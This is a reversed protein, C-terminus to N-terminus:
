DMGESLDGVDLAGPVMSMDGGEIVDVALQGIRPSLTRVFLFGDKLMAWVPRNFDDWVPSSGATWLRVLLVIERVQREDFRRRCHNVGSPLGLASPEQSGMCATGCVHGMCRHGFEDDPTYTGCSTDGGCVCGPCLFTEVMEAATM